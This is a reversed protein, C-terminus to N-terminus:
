KQGSKPAHRTLYDEIVRRALTAMKTDQSAVEMRLRRHLDPPLLLRVPKLEAQTETAPMKPEGTKKRAMDRDGLNAISHMPDKLSSVILLLRWSGFLASSSCHV